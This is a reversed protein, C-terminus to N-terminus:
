TKPKAAKSVKQDATMPPMVHSSYLGGGTQDGGVHAQEAECAPDAEPARDVNQWAELM